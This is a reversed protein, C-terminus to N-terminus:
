SIAQTFTAVGVPNVGCGGNMFLELGTQDTQNPINVYKTLRQNTCLRPVVTEGSFAIGTVANAGVAALSDNTFIPRGFLTDPMDSSLSQIYLPTGQNNVLGRIAQVLTDSANFVMDSRYQVPVKHYWGLIDAYTVGSASSGTKNGIGSTALIAATWVAQMKHYVRKLLSPEAYALLDFGPALLLTNSFWMAKSDYLTAALTMDTVTADQNVQSTNSESTNAADNASDDFIPMQYTATDATYVPQYGAAIVGALIANNLRRVIQPNLVKTPLFASTGSTSILTFKQHNGYESNLFSRVENRAKNFTAQDIRRDKMFAYTDDLVELKVDEINNVKKADPEHSQKAFEAVKEHAETKISYGAAKEEAELINKISDLRAFRATNADKEEPTFDRSETKAKAVLESAENKIKAFEEHLTM